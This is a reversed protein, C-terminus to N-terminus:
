LHRDNREQPRLGRGGEDVAAVCSGSLVGQGRPVIGASLQERLGTWRQWAPRRQALSQARSLGPERSALSSGQTCMESAAAGLALELIDSGTLRQHGRPPAGAIDRTSYSTSVDATDHWAQQALADEIDTAQLFSEGQSTRGLTPQVETHKSFPGQDTSAASSKHQAEVDVLMEFKGAAAHEANSPIMETACGHAQRGKHACPGAQLDTGDICGANGDAIDRSSDAAAGSEQDEHWQRLLPEIQKCALAWAGKVIVQAQTAV